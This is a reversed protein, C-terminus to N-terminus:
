RSFREVREGGRHLRFFGDAPSVVTPNILRGDATQPVIPARMRELEAGIAPLVILVDGEDALDLEDLLVRSEDTVRFVPTAWRVPVGHIPLYQTGHKVSQVPELCLLGASELAGVPAGTLNIIKRRSRM